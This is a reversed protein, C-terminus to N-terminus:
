HRFKFKVSGPGSFHKKEPDLTAVVPIKAKAGTEGFENANWYGDLLNLFKHEGGGM